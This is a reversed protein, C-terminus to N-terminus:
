GKKIKNTKEFLAVKKIFRILLLMCIYCGTIRIFIVVFYFSNELDIRELVRKVISWPFVRMEIQHICLILLSNRGLSKIIEIITSDIASIKSALWIIFYCSGVAGIVSIIGLIYTNNAMDVRIGYIIEIFFIFISSVLLWKNNLLEVMDIKKIKFGWHVFISACMGAQISLPLWFFQTSLFSIIWLLYIYIEGWKYMNMIRVILVAWFLAWFFWIAGVGEIQHSVRFSSGYLISIIMSKLDSIINESMKRIVDAFILLLCIIGGTAYYPILLRKAKKKLFIWISEDTKLFYGSILFFLPMHFTFVIRDIIDVGLHGFMVSIIGIGRAVDIWELRNTDDM